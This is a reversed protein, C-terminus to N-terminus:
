ETYGVNTDIRITNNAGDWIVGFNLAKGIDRLKFYNYGEISYAQLKIERGDLYIKSTTAVANKVTKTNNVTLEGGHPTYKSSPSININFFYMKSINRQM